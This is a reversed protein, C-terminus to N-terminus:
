LNETVAFFAARSKRRATKEPVTGSSASNWRRISVRWHASREARKQDHVSPLAVARLKWQERRVFSPRYSRVTALRDTILFITRWRGKAGGVAASLGLLDGPRILTAM